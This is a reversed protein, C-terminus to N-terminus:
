MGLENSFIYNTKSFIHLLYFEKKFKLKLQIQSVFLYYLSYLASEKCIVLWPKIRLLAYSQELVQLHSWQTSLWAFGYFTKLHFCAMPFIM